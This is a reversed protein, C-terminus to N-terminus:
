RNIYDYASIAAEKLTSYTKKGWLDDIKIKYVENKMFIIILTGIYTKLYFNGNKSKKFLSHYDEREREYYEKWYAEREKKEKERKIDSLIKRKNKLFLSKLEKERKKPNVYDDTLHEACVCGSISQLDQEDHYLHHEYRIDTGCWECNSSLEETDIVDVLRWGKRPLGNAKWRTPSDTMKNVYKGIM